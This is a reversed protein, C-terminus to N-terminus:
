NRFIRYIFDDSEKLLMENESFELVEILVDKVSESPFDFFIKNGSQIEWVGDVRSMDPKGGEKYYIAFESNERLEFSDCYRLGIMFSGINSEWYNSLLSEELHIQVVDIKSEPNNCNFFLVLMLLSTSFNKVLKM